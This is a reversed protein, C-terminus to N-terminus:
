PTVGEDRSLMGGTAPETAGSGSIPRIDQQVEHGLALSRTRNDRLEGALVICRRRRQKAVQALVELIAEVAQTEDPVSPFLTFAGGGFVATFQEVSFRRM